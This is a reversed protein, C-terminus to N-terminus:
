NSTLYFSFESVVTHMEALIQDKPCGMEWHLMQHYQCTTAEEQHTVAAHGHAADEIHCHFNNCM